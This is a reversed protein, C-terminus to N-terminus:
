QGSSKISSAYVPDPHFCSATDLPSPSVSGWTYPLYVEEVPVPAAEPIAVPDSVRPNETDRYAQAEKEAKELAKAAQREQYRAIFGSVTM